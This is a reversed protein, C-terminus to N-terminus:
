AKPGIPLLLFVAFSMATILLFVLAVPSNGDTILGSIVTAFLGVPTLVATALFVTRRRSSWAENVPAPLSAWPNGYLRGGVLALAAAVGVSLLRPTTESFALAASFFLIGGATLLLAGLVPLRM